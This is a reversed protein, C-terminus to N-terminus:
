GKELSCSSLVSFLVVNKGEEWHWCYQSCLTREWEKWVVWKLAAGGEMTREEQM